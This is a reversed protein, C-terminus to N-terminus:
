VTAMTAMLKMGLQTEELKLGGCILVYASKYWDGTLRIIIEKWDLVLLKMGDNM